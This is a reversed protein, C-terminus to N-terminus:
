KNWEEWTEDDMGYDEKYWQEVPKYGHESLWTTIEGLNEIYGTAVKDLTDSVVYFKMAGMDFRWVNLKVQLRGGDSLNKWKCYEGLNTTKHGLKEATKKMAWIRTTREAKKMLKM